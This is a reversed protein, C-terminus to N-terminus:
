PIHNFIANDMLPSLKKVTNSNTLKIFSILVKITLPDFNLSDTSVVFLTHM